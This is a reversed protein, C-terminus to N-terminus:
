EAPSSEHLWQEDWVSRRLVFDREGLTQRQMPDLALLGELLQMFSESLMDAVRVETRQVRRKRLYARFGYRRYYGFCRCHGARSTQWPYDNVSLCYLVVGLAFGDTLFGDYKASTYSEPARYNVKGYGGAKKKQWRQSSAMSFDILKVELQNGEASKSLVINELSLDGHVVNLDHLHQVARFLQMAVPRITAERKPGIPPGTSCWSHLDGETAFSNVIYTQQEDRFVGHLECLFSYGMSHLFRTCGLDTWPVESEGPNRSCFDMHSACMWSSPIAKVAVQREKCADWMLDVHGHNRESLQLLRLQQFRNPDLTSIEGQDFWDHLSMRETEKKHTGHTGFEYGLGSMTMIGGALEAFFSAGAHRVIKQCQSTGSQAATGCDEKDHQQQLLLCVAHLSVCLCAHESM